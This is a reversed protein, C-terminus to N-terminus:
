RWRRFGVLDHRRLVRGDRDARGAFSVVTATFTVSQGHVPSTPDGGRCRATDAVNVTQTFVASTSDGFTNADASVFEGHDLACWRWTSVTM